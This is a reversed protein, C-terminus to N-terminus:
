LASFHSADTLTLLALQDFAGPAYEAIFQQRNPLNTVSDIHRRERLLFEDM